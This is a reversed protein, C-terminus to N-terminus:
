LTRVGKFFVNGMLAEDGRVLERMREVQADRGLGEREVEEKWRQLVAKLMASGAEVDERSAKGSEDDTSSSSAHKGSFDELEDAKHKAM